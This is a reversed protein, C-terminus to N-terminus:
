EKCAAGGHKGMGPESQHLDSQGSATIFFLAKKRQINVVQQTNSM